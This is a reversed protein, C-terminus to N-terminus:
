LRVMKGGSSAIEEATAFSTVKKEVKFVEPCEVLADEDDDSYSEGFGRDDLWYFGGGGTQYHAQYTKGEHTFVVDVAEIDDEVCSGIKNFEEADYLAELQAVTFEM